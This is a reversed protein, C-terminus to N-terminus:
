LCVLPFIFVGHLHLSTHLKMLLTTGHRTTLLVGPTSAEVRLRAESLSVVIGPLTKPGSSNQVSTSMPSAQDKLHCLWRSPVSQKSGLGAFTNGIICKRVALLVKRHHSGPLNEQPTHTHTHTHTHTQARACTHKSSFYQKHLM